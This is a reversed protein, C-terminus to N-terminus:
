HHSFRGLFGTGKSHRVFYEGFAAISGGAVLARDSEHEVIYVMQDLGANGPPETRTIKFLENPFIALKIQDGINPRLDEDVNISAQDVQNNGEFKIKYKRVTGHTM